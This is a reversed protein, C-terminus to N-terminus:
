LEEERALGLVPLIFQDGLLRLRYSNTGVAVEADGFGGPPRTGGVFGKCCPSARGGPSSLNVCVGVQQILIM